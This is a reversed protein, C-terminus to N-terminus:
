RESWSWALGRRDDNVGISNEVAASVDNLPPDTTTFPSLIEFTSLDASLRARGVVEFAIRQQGPEDVRVRM